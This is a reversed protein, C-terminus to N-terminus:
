SRAAKELMGAFDAVFVDADTIGSAVVRERAHARFMALRETSSSWAIAKASYDAADNALMDHLGIRSLLSAGTRAAMRAGPQSIVPVGQWLAQLTTYGGNFPLPDLAVDIDAYQALFARGELIPPRPEVRQPDIGRAGFRARVRDRVSADALGLACLVLRAGPAAHLLDSWLGVTRDCLKALHNFSGFVAADGARPRMQPLPADPEPTFCVFGADLRLARRVAATNDPLNWRDGITGDCTEFGSDCLHGLYGLQLPAVRSALVRPRSGASHGALDILVDLRDDRLLRLLAADDAARCDRWHAPGGRLRATVDDSAGDHYCFVSMASSQTLLPAVLQGVPHRRLDPSLLGVRLTASARPAPPPLPYGAIRKARACQERLTAGPDDAELYLTALAAIQHSQPTDGDRAAQAADAVAGSADGAFLRLNARELRMAWDHPRAELAADALTQAEASKLQDALLKVLITAALPEHPDLLLARRAARESGLVDGFLRAGAAALAHLEADMPFRQMAAQMGRAAVARDGSRLALRVLLKLEAAQAQEPAALLPLLTRLAADPDGQRLLSEAAAIPTDPM